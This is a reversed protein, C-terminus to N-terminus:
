KAWTLVDEVQVICIALVLNSIALAEKLDASVVYDRNPCNNKNNNNSTQESQDVDARRSGEVGQSGECQDIV